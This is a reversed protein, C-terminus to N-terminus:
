KGSFSIMELTTSDTFSSEWPTSFRSLIMSYTTSYNFLTVNSLPLLTELTFDTKWPTFRKEMRSGNAGRM